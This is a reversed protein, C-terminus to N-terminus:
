PMENEILKKIIADFVGYLKEMHSSTIANLVFDGAKVREVENPDRVGIRIRTFDNTSLVATISDIGHHGASGGARVYKYAGIPLDSDDHAVILQQIPIKFYALAEHAAGGSVNMYTLPTALIGQPTKAAEFHKRSVTELKVGQTTAWYEVFLKGVNHYTKEYEKGPNGLGLILPKMTENSM